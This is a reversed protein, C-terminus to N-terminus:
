LFLDVKQITHNLQKLILIKSYMQRCCRYHIGAFIIIKFVHPWPPYNVADSTTSILSTSILSLYINIQPKSCWKIFVLRLTIFWLISKYIYLSFRPFRYKIMKNEKFSEKRSVSKCGLMWSSQPSQLNQLVNEILIVLTLKRIYLNWCNAIQSNSRTLNRSDFTNTFCGYFHAIHCNELFIKLFNFYWLHLM